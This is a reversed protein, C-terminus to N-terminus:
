RGGATRRQRREALLLDVMAGYSSTGRPDGQSRLYADNTASAVRTLARAALRKRQRSWFERISALDRGMGESLELELDLGRRAAAAWAYRLAMLSGSYRLLPDDSGRCVLAALYNAEDERAFGMAHGAEHAAVFPLTIGEPQGNVHAEGTFPSYIGTIGALTLFPSLAALRIVPPPGELLGARGGAAAWAELVSALVREREAPLVVVGREDERLLERAARCEEVLEWVLGRLEAESSPQVPLDMLGALPPRRHNLGWLAVFLVYAICGFVLLQRGAQLLAGLLHRRGALIELVGSSVRWLGFIGALVLLLESASVPLLGSCSTLLGRLM